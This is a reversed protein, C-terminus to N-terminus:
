GAQSRHMYVQRVKLGALFLLPLLGCVFGIVLGRLGPSLGDLFHTGPLGIGYVLYGALGCVASWLAAKLPPNWVGAALPVQRVTLTVLAGALGMGLLALL